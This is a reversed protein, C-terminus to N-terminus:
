KSKENSKVSSDWKNSQHKYSYSNVIQNEKTLKTGNFIFDLSHVYATQSETEVVKHCYVDRIMEVADKATMGGAAIMISALATGTRGHGAMCHIAVDEYKNKLMLEHFAKWFTNKVPSLGGDQTSLMIERYDINMHESLEALSPDIQNNSKNTLNLVVDGRFASIGSESSAWYTIGDLEFVESPLHSCSGYYYNYMKTM